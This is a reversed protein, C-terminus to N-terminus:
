SSSPVYLQIISDSSLQLIYIAIYFIYAVNFESTINGAYVPDITNFQLTVVGAFLTVVHVVLIIDGGLKFFSHM